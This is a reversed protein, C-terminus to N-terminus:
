TLHIGLKAHKAYTVEATSSGPTKHVGSPVHFLLNDCVKPYECKAAECHQLKHHRSQQRFRHAHLRRGGRRLRQGGGGRQEGHAAAAGARRFGAIEAKEGVTEAKEAGNQTFVVREDKERLATPVPPAPPLAGGGGGGWM